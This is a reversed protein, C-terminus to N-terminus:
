FPAPPRRRTQTRSDKQTRRRLHPLVSDISHPRGLRMVVGVPPPGGPEVSGVLMRIEEIDMPDIGLEKQGLASFVERPLLDLEEKNLLRSPRAVIM